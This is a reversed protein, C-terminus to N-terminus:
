WYKSKKAKTYIKPKNNFGRHVFNLGRNELFLHFRKHYKNGDIGYYKDFHGISDYGFPSSHSISGGDSLIPEIKNIYFEEPDEFHEFVESLLVLDVIEGGHPKINKMDIGMKDAYEYMFDVQSQVENHYYINANPFLESLFLTSLGNGTFYDLISNVKTDKFYRYTDKTTSRGRIMYCNHIDFFYREDTYVSLNNEDNWEALLESIKNKLLSNLENIDGVKYKDVLYLKLQTPM